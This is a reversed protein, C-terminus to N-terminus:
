LKLLLLSQMLDKLIFIKIILLVTSSIAANLVKSCPCNEAKSVLQQFADDTIGTLM